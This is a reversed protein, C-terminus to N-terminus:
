VGNGVPAWRRWNVLSATLLIAALGLGIQSLMAWPPTFRVILEGNADGPPLDVALLGIPLRRHPLKHGNLNISYGPWVMRNFVLLRPGSTKATIKLTERDATARGLPAVVLGPSHYSLSGPAAFSRPAIRQCAVGAGSPVCRWGPKEGQQDKPSLFDVEDVKLVDAYTLDGLGSRQNITTWAHPCSLGHTAICFVKASGAEAIPSYGFINAQGDALHMNGFKPRHGRPSETGLDGIVLHYSTPVATIDSFLPKSAAINWDHGVNGNEPAMMRTVSALVVVMTLILGVVSASKDAVLRPALLITVLLTMAAAVGFVVFVQPTLQLESLLGLGILGAATWRRRLSDVFGSLSAARSFALILSLQFYPLFRIPWRLFSLYEPGQTAVACAISVAVLGILTRDQKLDECNLFAALPVLYWAAFCFPTSVPNLGELDKIMGLQFPSSVALVSYFNPQLLGSNFIQSTRGAVQSMAALPLLAGLSALVGVAAALCFVAANRWDREKLALGTLFLAVLGYAVVAQPWGATCVGFAGFVAVSFSWPGRRAQLLSALGICMWATGTLGPRWISAYWYFLFNNSAFAVAALVAFAREVGLARALWYVGAGLLAYDSLATAFAAKSFTSFFSALVDNLLCLPNLLAYQYENLIAGGSNVQLTLDPWVGQRLATGIAAYMPAYQSQMDDRYYANANLIYPIVALLLAGIVGLGLAGAEKLGSQTEGRM